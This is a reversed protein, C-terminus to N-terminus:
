KGKTILVFIRDLDMEGYYEIEIKGGTGKGDPVIQVNTGLHRRLKTEAARTNADITPKAKSAPKASGGDRSFKKVTKEIERVSLTQEIAKRAIKRQADADDTM